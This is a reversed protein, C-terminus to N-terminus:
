RKSKVFQDLRDLAIKRVNQAGASNPMRDAARVAAVFDDSMLAVALRVGPLEPDNPALKEWDALILQALAPDGSSVAVSAMTGADMPRLPGARYLERVTAAARANLAPDPQNGRDRILMADCLVAGVLAPRKVPIVSPSRAAELLVTEAEAYRGRKVLLFGHVYRLTGEPYVRAFRAVEAIGEDSIGGGLAMKGLTAMAESAGRSLLPPLPRSGLLQRATDLSLESGTNPSLSRLIPLAKTFSATMRAPSDADLLGGFDQAEGLLELAPKFKDVQDGLQKRNSENAALSGPMDGLLALSIALMTNFNPDEPFLGRSAHVVDRCEGLRGLLLLSVALMGRAGHHYNDLEVAKKFHVVADSMSEALLGQAYERDAPPLGKKLAERILEITRDSEAGKTLESRLLLLRGEQDGLNTRRSLDDVIAIAAKEDGERNLVSLAYAKNLLLPVTDPYGADLASDINTVATALQGRQFAATAAQFYIYAVQSQVKELAANATAEAQRAKAEARTANRWLATSTVAWGVLLLFVLMSGAVLRKNRRTFKLAREGVGAPRAVIPRDERFRQLDDALAAASAYRRAPSKELCKLCVTELDRPVGPQLARPSVPERTRVQELTELLAAGRFPPRGTLCEYLIAGLAYVDSLPGVDKVQGAAQEPAMYSPTGMVAGTQTQGSEDDLRKALGFDAIKPVVSQPNRIPSQAFSDPSRSGSDAILVNGPKLDRHVIGARHAADMARALPEVLAAAERPPLPSGALRKALTGGEVFELAFYPKGDHEGVEYIQVVNPHHLRAVAEAETRFRTLEHTGAQAGALIMKLAVLRKLQTQCAKYVVGMAGRGLEGLVDFGPVQPFGGAAPAAPPVSPSPTYTVTGGVTTADPLPPPAATTPPLPPPAVARPAHDPFVGDVSQAQVWQTTGERLVMDTPKLRGAAALRALETRAVPCHKQRNSAYFWGPEAVTTGPPGGTGRCNPCLGTGDAAGGPVVSGCRSCRLSPEPM